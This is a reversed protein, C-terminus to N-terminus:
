GGPGVWCGLLSSAVTFAVAGKLGAQPWATCAVCGGVAWRTAQGPADFGNRGCCGALATIVTIALAWRVDLGSCATCLACGIIGWATSKGPRDFLGLIM